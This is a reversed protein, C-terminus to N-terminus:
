FTRLILSSGIIGLVALLVWEFTKQSVRERLGRGAALGVLLPVVTLASASLETRGLVGEIALILYLTAMGCLFFLAIAAVFLDKSVRLAVLYLALLPAYFNSVGGLIGAVLGMGVGAKREASTPIAVRLPFIRSAVFALVVGGLVRAILAPDVEVLVKAGILTGVVIAALVPWFRRALIGHHGGQVAQWGNSTLAPVTMLTIAMAPETVTAMLPVAVLPLGIGLVGKVTGAALFAGAIVLIEWDSVGIASFVGLFDAM